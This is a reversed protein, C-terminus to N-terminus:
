GIIPREEPLRYRRERHRLALATGVTIPGLRGVFMLLILLTQGPKPLDSTLGTSLGTTAFASVTEFLTRSMEFGGYVMLTMTSGIVAGVALLAVSIAQRQVTPALRRGVVAVNPEGRAEALIVFGLLAFTTVKIGGATSASGGGIFMLITTLLWTTERMESFDLTNFGATRSTVSQFLGPLIKGKTTFSGLTAPNTWELWLFGFTGLILLLVTTGLTVKTHMTWRKPERPRRRLEMLVPFGLGGLVVASIVSMSMWPDSVFRELSDSYLAFGANNFASVAHFVGHYVADVAPYDHGVFLRTGILVATVSEFLFSFAAVGVLVRRIDGLGLTKTESQAILRGKLGIRRSVLLALLSALTMIGFGGIQILLLITGQGFGSWYSGTDVVTLGTVCVASTATFLATLFPTSGEHVSAFPLLLVLTGVAVALAFAAVVFQAPHRLRFGRLLRGLGRSAPPGRHESAFVVDAM